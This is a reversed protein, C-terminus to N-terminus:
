FKPVKRSSPPPAPPPPPPPNSPPPPWFSGPQASVPPVASLKRQAEEEKRERERGRQEKEEWVRALGVYDKLLLASGIASCIQSSIAMGKRELDDALRAAELPQSRRM